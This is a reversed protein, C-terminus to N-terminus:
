ILIFTIIVSFFGQLVKGYLYPKISINLKAIISYVQLLVCFGGLGLFFSILLISIIPYNSYVISLLNLGNTIEIFSSICAKSFETPIEFNYLFLSVTNIIGSASLISLIVSFLVIYGGISLLSFIANKISEGIIEGINSLKIPVLNSSFCIEKFNIDLKDRKWFRFCYGVLIASLIHSILLIIGIKKNNLMAIGVTGIIFLPGSNNTFAILREAEIKSIAKNKKLNCVVKAGVPYGSIIGLLIALISEGPLNFIAKIPKNLIKGLIHAFTTRCLLETAIFFPFLSPLVKTSWLILGNQAAEINNESFMFLSILFVIFIITFINKRLSIVLFNM